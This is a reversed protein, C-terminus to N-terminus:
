LILHVNRVARTDTGKGPSLGPAGIDTQRSPKRGKGEQGEQEKQPFLKHGKGAAYSTILYGDHM